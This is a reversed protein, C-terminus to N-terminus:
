YRLNSPDTAYNILESVQCEVSLNSTLKRRVGFLARDAEENGCLGKENEDQREVNLAIPNKDKRAASITWTYLPDYRFVDLLTFLVGSDKRLLRLTEECGRQFAGHTGTIGMCDVLDRTLRFPVLEPTSLLKGQDFAVGLDIHILESTSSDFLINQAHRDGIRLASIGIGLVFGVISTTSISRMYSKRHNHWQDPSPHMEFLLKGFVPKYHSAIRQFMALKSAISTKSSSHETQM